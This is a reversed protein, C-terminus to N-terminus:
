HETISGKMNRCIKTPVKLKSCTCTFVLTHILSSM